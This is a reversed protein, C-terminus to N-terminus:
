PGRAAHGTVIAENSAIPAPNRQVPFNKQMFGSRATANNLYAATNLRQRKQWHLGIKMKQGAVMAMAIRLRKLREHLSMRSHNMGRCSTHCPISSKGLIHSLFRKESKGAVAPSGDMGNTRPQM